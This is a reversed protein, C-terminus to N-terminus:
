KGGIRGGSANGNSTSGFSSKEYGVLQQPQRLFQSFPMLPQEMSFQHDNLVQRRTKMAFFDMMMDKRQDSKPKRLGKPLEKRSFDFGFQSRPSRLDTEDYGLDRLRKAHADAVKARAKAPTLSRIDTFLKRAFAIEKELDEADLHGCAAHLIEGNPTLFLCQVNQHGLGRACPGPNDTPAHSCSSGATPDGETNIVACVFDKALADRVPKSSFSVTRM